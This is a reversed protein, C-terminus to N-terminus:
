IYIFLYKLIEESLDPTKSYKFSQAINQKKKIETCLRSMKLALSIFVANALLSYECKELHESCTMFHLNPIIQIKFYMYVKTWM